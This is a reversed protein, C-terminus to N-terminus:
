SIANLRLSGICRCLSEQHCVGALPAHGCSHTRRFSCGHHHYQRWAHRALHSTSGRTPPLWFRNGGNERPPRGSFSRSGGSSSAHSDDFIEISKTKASHGHLNDVERVSSNTSNTREELM